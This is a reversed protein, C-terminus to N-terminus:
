AAQHHAGCAAATRAALPVEDAETGRLEDFGLTVTRLDGSEAAALAAIAASDLGASLFVGVPVDAVLHHRISDALAERLTERAADQVPAPEARARAFVSRLDWFRAPRRPGNADVWLTSGAPLSRIDRYLTHPEPVSGWLLFGVEGAASPSRGVRGGALLAKVQSAARITGGDDAYYLPKVGFPDRALLMGGRRGDWLAFAFMGRLQEVGAAGHRDYLHLIVETDSESRFVRGEQELARRLARYNYIEGNFTITLGAANLHMPQSGGPGVDIISLRRHGLGVRGASAIWSAAADPGRRTMADRIALLEAPDVDPAARDHAFLAVIGCM